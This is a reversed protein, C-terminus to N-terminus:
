APETVSAAAESRVDEGITTYREGLADWAEAMATFSAGQEAHGLKTAVSGQNRFAGRYYDIGAQNGAILSLDRTVDNPAADIMEAQGKGVGKMIQDTFGNPEVDFEALFGVIKDQHQAALEGFAVVAERVDASTAKDVLAEAGEQGQESASRLAHLGAIHWQLIPQQQSM